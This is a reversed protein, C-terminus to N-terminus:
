FLAFNFNNQIKRNGCKILLLWNSKSDIEAEIDNRDNLIMQM